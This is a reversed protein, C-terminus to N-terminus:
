VRGALTKRNGAIARADVFEADLRRVVRRQFDLEFPRRGIQELEQGMLAGQGDVGGALRRLAWGAHGSMHPPLLLDARLVATDRTRVFRALHVAKTFFTRPPQSQAPLRPAVKVVLLPIALPVEVVGWVDHGPYLLSELPLRMEPSTAFM